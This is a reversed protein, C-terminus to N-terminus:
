EFGYRLVEFKSDTLKDKLVVPRTELNVALRVKDYMKKFDDYSKLAEFQKLGHLVTAHDKGISSGIYSLSYYKDRMVKFYIFRAYVYQRIRTNQRIDVELTSNILKILRETKM